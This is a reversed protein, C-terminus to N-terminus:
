ASLRQDQDVRDRTLSRRRSLTDYPAFRRGRIRAAAAAGLAVLWAVPLPRADGSSTSTCACGGRHSAQVGIAPHAPGGDSGDGGEAVVGGGSSGGTGGDDNSEAGVGLDCPTDDCIFRARTHAAGYGVDNVVPAYAALPHGTGVSVLADRGEAARISGKIAFPMTDIPTADAAVRAAVLDATTDPYARPSM